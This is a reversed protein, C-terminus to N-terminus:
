IFLYRSCCLCIWFTFSALFEIGSFVVSELLSPPYFFDLIPWPKREVIPMPILQSELISLQIWDLEISAVFGIVLIRGTSTSANWTYNLFHFSFFAYSFFSSFISSRLEMRTKMFYAYRRVHILKFHITRKWHTQPTYIHAARTFFTHCFIYIICMHAWLFEM